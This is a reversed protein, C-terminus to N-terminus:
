GSTNAGNPPKASAVGTSFPRMRMGSAGPMPKSPLASSHATICGSAPYPPRRAMRGVAPPRDRLHVRVLGGRHPLHRRSRQSRPRYRRRSTRGHGRGLARHAPLRGREDAGRLLADRHRPPSLNALTTDVAGPIPGEYRESFKAATVLIEENGTQPCRNRVVMDGAEAPKSRTEKGEGLIITVVIEGPVAPRVDVPRTKRAIGVRGDSEAAHFMADLEAVSIVQSAAAAAAGIVQTMLLGTCLRVERWRTDRVSDLM